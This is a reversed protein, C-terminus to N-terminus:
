GAREGANVEIYSDRNRIVVPFSVPENMREVVLTADIRAQLMHAEYGPEVRVRVGKLRPEFAELSGAIMMELRRRNGQNAPYFATYDAVGYNLVTRSGSAETWWSSNRTNLLRSVERCVSALLEDRSLTRLPRAEETELPATDVLRDFLSARVGGSNSHRNM